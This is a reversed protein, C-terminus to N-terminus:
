GRSWDPVPLCASGPPRPLRGISRRASWRPAARGRCHWSSRGTGWARRFFAVACLRRRQHMERRPFHREQRAGIGVVQVGHEAVESSRRPPMPPPMRTTVSTAAQATLRSMTVEMPRSRSVMCRREPPSRDPSMGPVPRRSSTPLMAAVRRMKWCRRISASRRAASCSVRRWCAAASFCCANRSMASVISVSLVRARPATMCRVAAMVPVASFM